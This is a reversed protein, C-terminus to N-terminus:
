VLTLGGKRDWDNGEWGKDDGVQGQRARMEKEKAARRLHQQRTEEREEMLPTTNNPLCQPDWGVHPNIWFGIPFLLVM